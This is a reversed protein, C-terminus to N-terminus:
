IIETYIFYNQTTGDSKLIIPASYGDGGIYTVFETTNNVIDQKVEMSGDASYYKRYQRQLVNTQLGGYYMVSRSNSANYM